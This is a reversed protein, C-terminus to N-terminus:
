VLIEIYPALSTLKVGFVLLAGQLSIVGGLSAKRVKQGKASGHLPLTGQSLGLHPSSEAEWQGLGLPLPPLALCWSVVWFGPVQTLSVQENTASCKCDESAGM